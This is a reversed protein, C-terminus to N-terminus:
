APSRLTVDGAFIPVVEGSAVRVLLQGEAGIGAAEGSVVPENRPPGSWIEVRRGAVVDRSRLGGLADQAGAEAWHRSLAVLLRAMLPARAVHAGVEECLSTPVPRGEWEQAPESGLGGLLSARDSNVNLGIGAIAWRLRDADMSGELLIGCVKKGGVLVDNPWKIGVRGQLGDLSELVDAVALAATLSLKHAQAPGLTPRLLVSFTLDKGQVSSWTRGLRGRGGTQEDTVVATGAPANEAVTKLEANTSACCAIHRYPLGVAPPGADLSLDFLFPLVAEAAVLDDFPRELRYGSGAVPAVAFGLSRLHEMHKHVAARSLGLAKGLAEGSVSPQFLLADTTTLTRALEIVLAARHAPGAALLGHDM